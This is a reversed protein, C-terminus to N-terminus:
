KFSFLKASAFKSIQCFLTHTLFNCGLRRLTVGERIDQFGLACIHETQIERKRTM